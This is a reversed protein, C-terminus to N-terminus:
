TNMVRIEIMFKITLHSQYNLYPVKERLIVALVPNTEPVNRCPLAALPSSRVQVRCNVAVAAPPDGCVSSVTWTVATLDAFAIATSSATAAFAIASSAILYVAAETAPTATAM